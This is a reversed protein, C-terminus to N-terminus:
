KLFLVGWFGSHGAGVNRLRPDERGVKATRHPPKGFWVVRYEFTLNRPVGDSYASRTRM